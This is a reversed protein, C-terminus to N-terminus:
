LYHHSGNILTLTTYYRDVFGVHLYIYKYLTLLYSVITINVTTSMKDFLQGTLTNANWTINLREGVGLSIEGGEIEVDRTDLTTSEVEM